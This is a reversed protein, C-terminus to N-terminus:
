KLGEIIKLNDKTKSIIFRYVWSASSFENKFNINLDNLKNKIQEINKNFIDKQKQSFRGGIVSYSFGFTTYYIPYDLNLGNFLSSLNKYGNIINLKNEVWSKNIDKKPLKFTRITGVNLCIYLIPEHNEIEIFLKYLNLDEAIKNLNEETIM